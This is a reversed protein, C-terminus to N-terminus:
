NGGAGGNIRAKLLVLGAEKSISLVPPWKVPAYWDYLVNNFERLVRPDQFVSSPDDATGIIGITQVLGLRSATELLIMLGNENLFDENLNGSVAAVNYGATVIFLALLVVFVWYLKPGRRPV